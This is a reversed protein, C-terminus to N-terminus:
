KNAPPVVTGSSPIEDPIGYDRTGDPRDTRLVRWTRGDTTQYEIQGDIARVSTPEIQGHSTVIGEQDLVFQEAPGAPQSGCGSASLFAAIVVLAWHLKRM